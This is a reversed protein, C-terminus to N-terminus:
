VAIRSYPMLTILETSSSFVVRMTSTSTDDSRGKWSSSPLTSPTPATDIKWNRMQPTAPRSSSARRAGSAAPSAASSSNWIGCTVPAVKATKM